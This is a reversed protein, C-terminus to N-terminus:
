IYQLSFFVVSLLTMLKFLRFGSMLIPLPMGAIKQVRNLHEGSISLFNYIPAIILVSVCMFYLLHKLPKHWNSINPQISKRQFPFLLMLVLLFFGAIDAAVVAGAAGRTFTVIPSATVCAGICGYGVYLPRSTLFGWLIAGCCIIAIVLAYEYLM